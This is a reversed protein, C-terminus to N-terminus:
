GEPGLFEDVEAFLAAVAPHPQFSTTCNRCLHPAEENVRQLLAYARQSANGIRGKQHEALARQSLRYDRGGDFPLAGDLEPCVDCPRPTRIMDQIERRFPQTVETTRSM